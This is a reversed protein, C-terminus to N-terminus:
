KIAAAGGSEFVPPAKQMGFTANPMDFIAIFKLRSKIVIWTSKPMMELENQHSKGDWLRSPVRLSSKPSISTEHIYFLQNELDQSWKKARFRKKEHENEAMSKRVRKPESKHQNRSWKRRWFPPWFSGFDVINITIVCEPSCHQDNHGVEDFKRCNRCWKWDM